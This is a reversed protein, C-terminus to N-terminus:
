RAREARREEVAAVFRQWQGDTSRSHGWLCCGYGFGFAGFMACGFALAAVADEFMVSRVEVPGAM